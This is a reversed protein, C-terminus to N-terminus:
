LSPMWVTMASDAWNPLSSSPMLVSEGSEASGSPATQPRKRHAPRQSHQRAPNAGLARDHDAQHDPSAHRDVGIRQQLCHPWNKIMPATIASTSPPLWASLRESKECIIGRPLLRLIEAEVLDAFPARAPQPRQEKAQGDLERAAIAQGHEADADEEDGAQNQQRMTLTRRAISSAPLSAGAFTHRPLASHPTHLRHASRRRM